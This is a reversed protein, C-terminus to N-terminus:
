VVREPIEIEDIDVNKFRLLGIRCPNCLMIINEISEIFFVINEITKFSEINLIVFVYDHFFYIFYLAAHNFFFLFHQFM